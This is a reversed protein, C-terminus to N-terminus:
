VSSDVVCYANGNFQFETLGNDYDFYDIFIEINGEVFGRLSEPVEIVGSQTWEVVTDRINGHYVTMDKRGIDYIEQPDFAGHSEHYAALKVHSEEDLSGLEELHDLDEYKDALNALEIIENCWDKDSTVSWDTIEVDSELFDYTELLDDRFDEMGGAVFTDEDGSPFKVTIEFTLIPYTM